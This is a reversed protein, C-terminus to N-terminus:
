AHALPFFGDLKRGVRMERRQEYALGNLQDAVKEITRAREKESLGALEHKEV